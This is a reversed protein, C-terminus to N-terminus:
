PMKDRGALTLLPRALKAGCPVDGNATTISPPKGTVWWKRKEESLRLRAEASM